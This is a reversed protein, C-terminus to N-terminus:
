QVAGPSAAEWLGCRLSSRVFIHCKTPSSPSPQPLHQAVIRIGTYYSVPCVFPMSQLRFNICRFKFVTASKSSFSNVRQSVTNDLTLLSSGLSEAIGISGEMYCYIFLLLHLTTKTLYNMRPKPSNRDWPNPVKNRAWKVEIYKWEKRSNKCNRCALTQPFCEQM